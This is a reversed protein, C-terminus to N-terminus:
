CAACHQRRGARGGLRRLSGLCVCIAPWASCAPTTRSMAPL